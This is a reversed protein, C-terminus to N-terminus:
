TINFKRSDCDVFVACKLTLIYVFHTVVHQSLFYIIWGVMYFPFCGVANIVSWDIFWIIIRAIRCNIPTFHESLSQWIIHGVSVLNSQV